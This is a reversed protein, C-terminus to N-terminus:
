KDDQNTMEQYTIKHKLKRLEEAEYLHERAQKKCERTPNKCSVIAKAVCKLAESHEDLSKRIMKVEEYSLELKIKSKGM